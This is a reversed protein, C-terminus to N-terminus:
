GCIPPNNDRYRTLPHPNRARRAKAGHGKEAHPSQGNPQGHRAPAGGGPHRAACPYVGDAALGVKEAVPSPTEGSDRLLSTRARAAAQAIRTRALRGPRERDKAGPIVATKPGALGHRGDEGETLPLM